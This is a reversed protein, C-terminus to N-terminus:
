SKKEIRSFLTAAEAVFKRMIEIYQGQTVGFYNHVSDNRADLADAWFEPTDIWGLGVSEQISQRPGYAERGQDQVAAQMLKWTYEFAVEFRKVAADYHVHWYKDDVDMKKLFQLSEGLADISERCVALNDGFKKERM